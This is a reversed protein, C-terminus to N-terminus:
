GAFRVSIAALMTDCADAGNAPECGTALKLQDFYLALAANQRDRILSREFARAIGELALLQHAGATLRISHIAAHLAPLTMARCHTELQEIQAHLDARISLMVDQRHQM